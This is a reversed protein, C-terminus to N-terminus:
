FSMGKLKKFLSVASSDSMSTLYDLVYMIRVYPSRVWLEDKIYVESNPLLFMLRKSKPSANEGNLALDNASGVFIDLMGEFIEFGAAVIEVVRPTNYIVEMSRQYVNQLVTASPIKDILSYEMEGRLIDDHYQIFIDIVEDVLKGIARARLFEVKEQRSNLSNLTNMISKSKIIDGFLTELESYEIRSAFYGDEFDVIRYSIDDAAEVLFALPHRVYSYDAIQRLGLTTAIDVLLEKDLTFVNYKKSSVGGAKLKANATCPYKILAGLTACSLQMGGVNSAHQLKNLIRFGQANGEYKAIDAIEDDHMCCKCEKAVPSHKFWHQVAEEGAHGLPPNGIDHALAGAAVIAGFDSPHVLGTNFNKCVFAGAGTGLSRGVSSTELSHTLRTRVYDTESLPFVQTKDQLRRFPASFVIRDFDQQFPSRKPQVTEINKVGLRKTSLLKEWNMIKVRISEYSRTLRAM